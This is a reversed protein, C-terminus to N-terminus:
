AAAEWVLGHTPLSMTQAKNRQAAALSQKQGKSLKKKKKKKKKKTTTGLCDDSDVAILVL